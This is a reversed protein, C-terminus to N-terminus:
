QKAPTAAFVVQATMTLKESREMSPSAAGAIASEMSDMTAAKFSRPMHMPRPASDNGSFNITAIRYNRGPIASNLEGLQEVADKYLQTRLKSNTEEIEALTPSFDIAVVSLQMGAKSQKKATEGLGSLQNEPLRAEFRASWREMGTQDQGRNFSILRWEAKSISEVAKAMESRATGATGSNVAAEVAVTVRATQTTVWAESSLNIAVSDEPKTEEAFAPASCLLLALMFLIRRTM